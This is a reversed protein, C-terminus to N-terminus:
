KNDVTFDKLSQGLEDMDHNFESKFSEWNSQSHDYTALKTRLDNNKDELIDIKKEYVPDLVKGPKAMKVKLEAIRKENDSIKQESESKFAKWEEATAAKQSEANADNQVEKLNQKDTQVKDQAAEVKEASSNCGTFVTGAMLTTVALIFIAKKM